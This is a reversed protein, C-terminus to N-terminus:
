GGWVISGNADKVILRRNSSDYLGTTKVNSSYLTGSSPNFYLKSNSVYSATWSGGISASMGIYYNTNSSVDNILNAGVSRWINDGALYTNANATGSGLRSVNIIGSTISNSNINGSVTGAITLTNASVTRFVANSFSTNGTVSLDTTSIAGFSATNVVRLGIGSSTIFLTNSSKTYDATEIKNLENVVSNTTILWQFFTNSLSISSIPM